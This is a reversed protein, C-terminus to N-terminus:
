RQIGKKKLDEVRWLALSKDGFKSSRYNNKEIICDVPEPLHFPHKQFNLARWAGTLTNFNRKCEPFNTMLLYKAQSNVINRLADFIKSYSLHVLCDRCFLLDTKPLSSNCVDLVFFEGYDSYQENNIRVLDEVIDAGIYKVPADLHKMWHFDGCPIDLVSAISYKRLLLPLQKLIESTQSLASGHGSVSETNGWINKSYIENFIKKDSIFPYKLMRLAYRLLYKSNPANSKKEGATM